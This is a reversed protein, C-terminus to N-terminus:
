GPILLLPANQKISTSVVTNWRMEPLRRFWGNKKFNRGIRDKIQSADTVEQM